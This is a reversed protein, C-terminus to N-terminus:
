VGAFVQGSRREARRIADIIQQGVQDPSSVLGAEVSVNIVTTSGGGGSMALMDLGSAQMLEMARTPNTLPIIAEAGAEGVMSFEPKTIIGGVARKTFGSFDLGPPIYVGNVYVGSQQAVPVGGYGGVTGYMAKGQMAFATNAKRLLENMLQIATQIQGTDVKILIRNRDAVSATTLIQEAFGMLELKNNRLATQVEVTDTVGDAMAQAWYISFEETKEQLAGFENEFNLRNKLNDWSAIAFDVARKQEDILATLESTPTQADIMARYGEVWVRAMDDTVVATEATTENLGLLNEILAAAFFSSKQFINASEVGKSNMADQAGPISDIIKFLATLDEIAKTVIPLLNQGIALSFDEFSDKLGDMAARFQRAKEVEAPDIVKQDSVEQLSKSLEGSGMAILEAMQQWGRGLLRAGAAARQAPDEIQNLRDVVNLFTKNADVAGGSTYAIEVGLNKFAQANNGLTKNMFGLSKEVAGMEIGIDGAVEVLRSADQTTLGTADSFKGISIALDQFAMVSKVGFAVIAAGAAAAFNMANSKVYDLAAGSGVKFKGMAGNADGVSNKFKGFATEAERLGAKAKAADAIINVSLSATKAAM